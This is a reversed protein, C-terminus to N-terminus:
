EAVKGGFNCVMVITKPAGLGGEMHQAIWCDGPIRRILRVRVWRPGDDLYVADGRKLGELKGTSLFHARIAEHNLNGLADVYNNQDYM